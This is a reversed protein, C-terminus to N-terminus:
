TSDFQQKGDPFNYISELFWKIHSSTSLYYLEKLYMSIEKLLNSFKEIVKMVQKIGPLIIDLILFRGLINLLFNKQRCFSSLHAVLYSRRIRHSQYTTPKYFINQTTTLARGCDPALM